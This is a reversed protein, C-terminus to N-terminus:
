ESKKSEAPVPFTAPPPPGLIANADAGIKGLWQRLVADTGSKPVAFMGKQPIYQCGHPQYLSACSDPNDKALQRWETWLAAYDGAAQKMREQDYKGAAEGSAGLAMVTWSKEIIAYKCCGYRSSVVIAQKLEPDAIKLEEALRVIQKWIATAEAKEQILAETKQSKAANKFMGDLGGGGMYEDREWSVPVDVLRSYQGLWVGKMSLHCLERFKAVDAADLKLVQTSFEDLIEPETRQPNLAWHSIVYSNVLGWIENKVYPGRWGGGRSWNYVGKVTGAKLLDRLCRYPGKSKEGEWGEIVSGAIYNPHANKGEYERQSQIEVIQNHKGIGLTPNFPFTRFYDGATHKISLLLKPHPEVQDTERLYVKPDTHLGDWGWTRYILYKNRKVCIEERLIQMLLHHDKANKVPSQGRHFPTDHLYTEGFRLTLGDLEPFRSFIEDVWIRVIRQTEPNTINLDGTTKRYKEFVEEPLVLVDTFPIVLIGGQHMQRVYDGARQSHMEIWKRHESGRPVIGDELSDFNVGCQIQVQPAQANFGWRRLEEAGNFRSATRPEGPNHHVMEMILPLAQESREAQPVTTKARLPPCDSPLWEKVPEAFLMLSTAALGFMAIRCRMAFLEQRHFMM